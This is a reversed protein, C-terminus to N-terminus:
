RSLSVLARRDKALTLTASNQLLGSASCGSPTSARPSDKGSEKAWASAMPRLTGGAYGRWPAFLALRGGGGVNM